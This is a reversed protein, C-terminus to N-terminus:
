FARRKSTHGAFEELLNRAANLHWKWSAKRSKGPYVKINETIKYIRSM